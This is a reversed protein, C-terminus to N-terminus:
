DEEAVQGGEGEDPVKKPGSLGDNYALVIGAM